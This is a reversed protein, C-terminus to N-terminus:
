GKVDSLITEILANYRNIAQGEATPTIVFFQRQPFRTTGPVEPNDKRHRRKWGKKRGANGHIWGARSWSSYGRGRDHIFAWWQKEGRVGKAWTPGFQGQLSAYLQGSAFLIRSDLGEREKYERTVPSLSPFAQSSMAERISAVLYGSIDKFAASAEAYSAGLLREGAQNVSASLDEANTNLSLFATTM